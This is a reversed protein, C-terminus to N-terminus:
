PHDGAEHRQPDCHDRELNQREAAQHKREAEQRRLEEQLQRTEAAHAKQEALLRQQQRHRERVHNAYGWVIAVLAVFMGLGAVLIRRSAEEREKFQKQAFAHLHYDVRIYVGPEGVLDYSKLQRFQAKRRPMDSDWVIEKFSLRPDFEDRLKDDFGVELRFIVPFLPLQGTYIKTPPAAMSRLMEQIEDRKHNHRGIFSQSPGGAHTGGPTRASKVLERLLEPLTKFGIRSERLWETMAQEDYIEEGKRWWRLPEQLLLFLVGCLLAPTAVPWALRFWERARTAPM